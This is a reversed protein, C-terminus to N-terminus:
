FTFFVSPKYSGTPNQSLRFEIGILDHTQDYIVLSDFEMSIWLMVENLWPFEFVSELVRSIQNRDKIM